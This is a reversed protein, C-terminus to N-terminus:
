SRVYKFAVGNHHKSDKCVIELQKDTLYIECKMYKEIIKDYNENKILKKFEKTKM